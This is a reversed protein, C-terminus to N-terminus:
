DGEEIMETIKDEVEDLIDLKANSEFNLDNELDKIDEKQERVWSLLTKLQSM